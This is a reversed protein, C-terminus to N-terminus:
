ALTFLRCNEASPTVDNGVLGGFLFLCFFDGEGGGGEEEAAAAVGVVAAASGEEEETAVPLVPSAAAWKEVM